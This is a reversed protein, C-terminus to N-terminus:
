IVSQQTILWHGYRVVTSPNNREYAPGGVFRKNGLIESFEVFVATRNRSGLLLKWYQPSEIRATTRMWRWISYKVLSARRGLAEIDVGSLEILPSVLTRYHEPSIYSRAGLEPYDSPCYDVEAGVRLVADHLLGWGEAVFSQRAM